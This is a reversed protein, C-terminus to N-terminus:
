TGNRTGPSPGEDDGQPQDRQHSEQVALMMPRLITEIPSNMTPRCAAPASWRYRGSASERSPATPCTWCRGSPRPQDFIRAATEIRQDEHRRLRAALHLGLNWSEPRGSSHRHKQGGRWIGGGAEQEEHGLGVDDLQGILTSSPALSTMEAPKTEGSYLRWWAAAQRRLARFLGLAVALRSRLLAPALQILASIAPWATSPRVASGPRRHSSWQCAM